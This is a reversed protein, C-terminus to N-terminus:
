EERRDVLGGAFNATYLISKHEKIVEIATFQEISGYKSFSYTLSGNKYLKPGRWPFMLNGRLLAEQLFTYIEKVDTHDPTVMGYYVMMWYPKGKYFAVERGGYPEGGFYNDHFSWDGRVYTISTSSDKEKKQKDTDGSAYSARSAELIFSSLEQLPPM